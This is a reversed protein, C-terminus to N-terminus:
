KRRYSILITISILLICVCICVYIYLAMCTINLQPSVKRGICVCMQKRESLHGKNYPYLWITSRHKITCPGSVDVTVNLLSSVTKWLFLRWIRLRWRIYQYNSHTNTFARKQMYSHKINNHFGGKTNNTKMCSSEFILFGGTTSESLYRLCVSTM